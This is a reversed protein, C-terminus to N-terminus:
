RLIGNGRNAADTLSDALFHPLEIVVPPLAAALPFDRRV